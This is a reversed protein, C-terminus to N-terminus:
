RRIKRTNRRQQKRSSRPKQPTYLQRRSVTRQVPNQLLPVNAFPINVPKAGIPSRQQAKLTFNIKKQPKPYAQSMYNGNKFYFNHVKNPM